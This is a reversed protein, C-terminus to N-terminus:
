FVENLMPALFNICVKETSFTELVRRTMSTRAPFRPQGCSFLHTKRRGCHDPSVKKVGPCRPTLTPFTRLFNLGFLKHKHQKEVRRRNNELSFTSSAIKSINPWSQRSTLLIDRLPQAIKPRGLNTRLKLAIQFFGGRLYESGWSLKRVLWSFSRIEELYHRNWM